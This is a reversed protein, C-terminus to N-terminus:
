LSALLSAWSAEKTCKANSLRISMLVCKGFLADMNVNIQLQREKMPGLPVRMLTAFEEM